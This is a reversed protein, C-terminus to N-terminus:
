FTFDLRLTTLRGIQPAGIFFQARHDLVNQIQLTGRLGTVGPILYQINLDIMNIANIDGVFVGSIMKFGDTWRWRAGVTLGLGPERVNAYLSGKYQPANFAFDQIGGIEEATWYLGDVSDAGGAKGMYTFAGGVELWHTPAYQVALDAGYYSLEGFNRPALLIDGQHTTENPSVTGVPVGSYANAIVTSYVRSTAEAEAEEMGNAMLAAKMQPQLYEFTEQQSLFVNPTIISQGSIFNEVTTYYADLSVHLDNTVFGQYGLEFTTTTTPTLKPVDTVDAVPTFSGDTPNLIAMIGAIDQPAGISTLFQQLLAKQEDSLTTDAALGGLVLQTTTEWVGNSSASDLHTRTSRNFQSVFTPMGNVRPFTYGSRATGSAWVGVSWDPNFRSLGFADPTSQLTWFCTM